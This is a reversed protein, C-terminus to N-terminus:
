STESCKSLYVSSICVLSWCRFCCCCCCCCCYVIHLTIYHQQVLSLSLSLSISNCLSHLDIPQIHLTSNFSSRGSPSRTLLQDLWHPHKPTHVRRRRQQQQQGTTAGLVLQSPLMALFFFPNEKKGRRQEGKEQSWMKIRERRSCEVVAADLGRLGCVCVCM